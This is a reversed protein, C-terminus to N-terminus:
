NDLHHCLKFNRRTIEISHTIRVHWGEGVEKGVYMMCDLTMSKRWSCHLFCLYWLYWRMALQSSNVDDCSNRMALTVRAPRQHVLIFITAHGRWQSSSTHSSNACTSGGIRRPRWRIRRNNETFIEGTTPAGVGTSANLRATPWVPHM